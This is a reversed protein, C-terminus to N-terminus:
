CPPESFKKYYTDGTCSASVFQMPSMSGSVLLDNSISNFLSNQNTYTTYGTVLEGSWWIVRSDFLFYHFVVCRDTRLSMKTKKEHVM